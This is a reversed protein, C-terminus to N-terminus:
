RDKADFRFWRRLASTPEPPKRRSRRRDAGADQPDTWGDASLVILRQRDDPRFTGARLLGCFMDLALHRPIPESMATAVGNHIRVVLFRSNGTM